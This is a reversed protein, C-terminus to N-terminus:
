GWSVYWCVKVNDSMESKYWSVHYVGLGCVRVLHSPFCESGRVGQWMTVGGGGGCVRCCKSGGCVRGCKSGRM